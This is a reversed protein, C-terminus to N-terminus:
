NSFSIPLITKVNDWAMLLDTGHSAPLFVMTFDELEPSLVMTPIDTKFVDKSPDMHLGWTYLNNNFIITWREAYPKCYMIYRGKSIRTGSIMADKFFEIETAENAGLRWDLGYKCLSKESDGFISRGKKHPRSYIVRALPGNTSDKGNMKQMPYGAPFYSMDMPTAYTRDNILLMWVYWTVFRHEQQHLNLHRAQCNLLIM